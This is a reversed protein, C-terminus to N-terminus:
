NIYGLAKLKETLEDDLQIKDTSLLNSKENQTGIWVNLEAFLSRTIEAKEAYLNHQERPDSKLDFLELENESRLLLKWDDSRIMKYNSAKVLNESFAFNKDYSRDRVLEM